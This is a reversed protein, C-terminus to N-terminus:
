SAPWGSPSPLAPLGDADTRPVPLEDDAHDDDARGAHLLGRGRAKAGYMALDAEALVDTIATGAPAVALGISVSVRVTRRGVEVEDALEGVLRQGVAAADDASLGPLVAAFEDGGLRGVVAGPFAILGAELRQALRALLQDGVAHGARDNVEKFRDVDVFLVAGGRAALAEQGAALLHGRNALGTLPDQRATRTLARRWADSDTAITTLRAVTDDLALRQHADAGPALERVASRVLALVGDLPSGTAVAELVRNQVALLRADWSHAILQRRLSLVSRVLRAQMQLVEVQADPFERVRVDRVGLAGLVVGDEDVLPVGLYSRVAGAAVAPNAALVPHARADEVRLPEGSAVVHAAFSVEDPEESSPAGLGTEAPHVQVGPGVLEIAAVPAGLAHAAHAVVADLDADGVHGTLRHGALAALRAPDAVARSVSQM